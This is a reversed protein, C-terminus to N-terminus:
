WSPWRLRARATRNAPDDLREGPRTGLPDSHLPHVSDPHGARHHAARAVMVRRPCDDGRCGIRPPSGLVPQGAPWLAGTRHRGRLARHRPDGAGRWALPAGTALDTWLAPLRSGYGPHVDGSRGVPRRALSGGADAVSEQVGAVREAGCSRRRTGALRLRAPQSGPRARWLWIVDVLFSAALAVLATAAVITSASVPVAPALAVCLAVIQVVCVTQRRRSPPLPRALWPDIWGAAVFAYRLLGSLLVWGGAKGHQWVLISLAMILLADVEMDFRAGFESTGHQPTGALRGGRRADRRDGRRHGRGRRGACSGTRRCDRRGAGGARGAVTTMQNAPGFGAFPHHTRRALTAVSMVLAMLAASEVTYLGHRPHRQARRDRARRDRDIRARGRCRGENEVAGEPNYRPQSLELIIPCSQRRALTRSQPAPGRRSERRAAAAGHRASSTRTRASYLPMLRPVSASTNLPRTGALSYWRM